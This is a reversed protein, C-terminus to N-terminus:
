DPWTTPSRPPSRISPRCRPWPASGMPRPRHSGGDGFTGGDTIAGFARPTVAMLVASLTGDAAVALTQPNPKVAGISTASAAPPLLNPRYTM